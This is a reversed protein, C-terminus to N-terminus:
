HSSNLRKGKRDRGATYREFLDTPTEDGMSYSLANEEIGIYGRLTDGRPPRCARKDALPLRFLAHFAAFTEAVLAPAVGHGTVILFGTERCAADVARAVAAKGAAEGALFPAIDMVRIAPADSGTGEMRVM